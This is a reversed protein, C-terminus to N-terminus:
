ILFIFKLEHSLDTMDRPSVLNSSLCSGIAVGDFLVFGLCKRRSVYSKRPNWFFFKNRDDYQM